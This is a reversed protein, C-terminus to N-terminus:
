CSHGPFLVVAARGGRALYLLLLRGEIELTPLTLADVPMRLFPFRQYGFILPQSHGSTHCMVLSCWLVFTFPRTWFDVCGVGFGRSRMSRMTGAALLIPSVTSSQKAPVPVVATAATLCLRCKRAKSILGSYTSFRGATGPQWVGRRVVTGLTDSRPVSLDFSHRLGHSPTCM